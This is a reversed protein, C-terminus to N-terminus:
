HKAKWLTNSANTVWVADPCIALEDCWWNGCAASAQEKTAHEVVTTEGDPWRACSNWREPVRNRVVGAIDESLDARLCDVTARCHPPCNAAMWEILPQAAAGFEEFQKATLSSKM